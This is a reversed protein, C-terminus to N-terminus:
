QCKENKLKTILLSTVSPSFVRSIMNVDSDLFVAEEQFEFDFLTFTNVHWYMAPSIAYQFDALRM